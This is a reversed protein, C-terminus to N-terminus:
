KSQSWCNNNKHAGFVYIHFSVMWLINKLKMQGLCKPSIGFVVSKFVLVKFLSLIKFDPCQSIFFIDYIWLFNIKVYWLTAYLVYLKHVPSWLSFLKFFGLLLSIYIFVFTHCVYFYKFHFDNCFHSCKTNLIMIQKFFSLTSETRLRSVILGFEGSTRM